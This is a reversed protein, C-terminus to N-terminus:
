FSYNYSLTFGKQSPIWRCVGGSCNYGARTRGYGAQLRHAGTNYTVLGQYYHHHSNDSHTAADSDGCNWMDSLTFMWHPALSLEALAYAWDGEDDKTALYQAEVRLTTKPSFQYKGDAVFINSHIMGGEGEIVTKNYRQNMYMLSLKFAKSLKRTLQVDLDQYYTQDGWKFFKSTYGETGAYRMNTRSLSTVDAGDSFTRDIARVYSFVVKMNMGYKGGLTTKRKFNYGLEAQYAWEGDALQTAYPYLAALAYTHDQTFAPLHNIASAIGLRSRQSKFSMNESRKAQLLVSLGKQSYSTSLMAVNGRGYIYGNAQSPDDGKQAYEALLSFNGANLSARVDWANVNRPQALQYTTYRYGKDTGERMPPLELYDEAENKNVWSAGLTLNMGHQQMSSLWESVNVEGDAGSVWAKNWDWYARQRGSLAKLVIGCAPKVTVRGGLLSNDIGLSREEYTRLIFGSGFQEYFTGATIEASAKDAVTSGLRGKIYFHPVGWGKFDSEFGPLPHELYELRAGADFYKQHLRLDVYTNTQFDETKEAGIDKDSQPVLMDSQVSGSLTLKNDNQASATISLLCSLSLILKNM